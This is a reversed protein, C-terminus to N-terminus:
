SQESGKKLSARFRTAKNIAEVLKEPSTKTADYKAWATGKEHDAKAEKVGEVKM